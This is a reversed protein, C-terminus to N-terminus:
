IKKLRYNRVIEKIFNRKRKEAEFDERRIAAFLKTEEILLRNSNFFLFPLKEETKKNLETKYFVFSVMKSLIEVTSESYENPNEVLLVDGEMIKLVRNKREFEESLFNKLKKLVVLKEYNLIIRELKEIELKLDDMKKRLNENELLFNKKLEELSYEANRGRQGSEKEQSIIKKMLFDNYRKLQSIKKLLNKNQNKLITKERLAMRLENITKEDTRKEVFKKENMKEGTENSNINETKSIREFSVNELIQYAEKINKGSFVLRTLANKFEQSKNKEETIRDIKKLLSNLKKLSYVVAAISDREHINDYSFGKSLMRKEEEKLEIKPVILKSGLKSSLKEVFKPCPKKDCAIALVHGHKVLERLLINIGLHRESYTHIELSRLNFISYATTTGPDVGVIINDM